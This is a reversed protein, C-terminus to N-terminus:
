RNTACSGPIKGPHTSAAGRSTAPIGSAAPMIMSLQGGPILRRSNHPTARSPTIAVVPRTVIQTARTIGASLAEAFESPVHSPVKSGQVWSNPNTLRANTAAVLRRLPESGM